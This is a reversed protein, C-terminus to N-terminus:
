GSILVLASTSGHVTVRTVDLIVAAGGAYTIASGGTLGGSAIKM